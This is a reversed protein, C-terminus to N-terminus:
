CDKEEKHPSIYKSKKYIGEFYCKLCFYEYRTELIKYFGKANIEEDIRLLVYYNSDIPEGCWYCTRSESMKDSM